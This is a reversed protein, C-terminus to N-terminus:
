LYYNNIKIEMKNFENIVNFFEHEEIEGDERMRILMLRKLLNAKRTPKKSLYKIVQVPNWVHESAEIELM